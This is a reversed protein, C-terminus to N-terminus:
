NIIQSMHVVSIHYAYPCNTSVGGYNQPPIIIAFTRSSDSNSNINKCFLYAELYSTFYKSYKQFVPTWM